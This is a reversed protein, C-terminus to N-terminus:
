LTLAIEAITDDISRWDISEAGVVQEALSIFSQFVKRSLKFPNPVAISQVYKNSLDVQGGAIQISTYSSSVRPAAPPPASPQVLNGFHSDRLFLDPFLPMNKRARIRVTLKGAKM